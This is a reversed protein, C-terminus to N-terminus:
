KKGDITRSSTQMVGTEHDFYYLAGTNRDHVWGYAEYYYEPSYLESFYHKEGNVDQIGYLACGNEDFFYKHEGITQYGILSRGTNDAYHSWYWDNTVLKRDDGFVYIVGDITNVGDVANGLISNFYYKDGNIAQWGTAIENDANIYVHTYAFPVYIVRIQGNGKLYGDDTFEYDEGEITQLGTVKTGEKYYCYHTGEKVWGDEEAYTAFALCLTAIIVSIFLCCKKM